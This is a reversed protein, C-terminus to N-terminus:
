ILEKSLIEEIYKLKWYPIRILKINNELCYQTKIFDNNKIYILNSYGGYFNSKQYHQQGDFEILINKETVYFDFPLTNKNRCDDFRKETEFKINNKNLFFKIAKEGKSIECGCRQGQQFRNWNIISKNGCSCKYNLPKFAGIYKTELLVCGQELFYNYVYEFSHTIAKTFKIIGCQKCRHGNNFDGWYIKSINGCKCIYDLKQKSNIYETSLLTCGEKEFQEKVFEYSHKLKESTKKAGCKKCRQGSKFNDWTIYTENGCSCRFKLKTKSNIFEKELLECGQEKFFNYIEDYFYRRSNISRLQGCKKCRYGKKFDSWRIRSENGCNCKYKMLTSSNVYDTELLECGHEEFYNKIFEFTLKKPM